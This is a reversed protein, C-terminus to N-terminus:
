YFVKNNNEWVELKKKEMEKAREREALLETKDM